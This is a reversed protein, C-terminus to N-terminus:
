TPWCRPARDRVRWSGRRRSRWGREGSCRRNGPPPSRRHSRRRRRESRPISPHAVVSREWRPYPEQGTSRRSSPPPWRRHRTRKRRATERTWPPGVTSREWRRCRRGIHGRTAVPLHGAVPPNEGEVCGEPTRHSILLEIGGDDADSRIEGGPSIEFDGAVPADEGEVCGEMTGHTYGPEVGGHHSDCDIRPRATVPFHGAVAPTKAKSAGNKPEIPPVARTRGTTPITASGATAAVPFDSTVAADEIEIRREETGRSSHRQSRGHHPDRRLGGESAQWWNTCPKSSSSTTAARSHHRFRLSLGTAGLAAFGRVVEAAEDPAGAPDLPPDPPFILSFPRERPRSRM